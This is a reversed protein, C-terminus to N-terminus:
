SRKSAFRASILRSLLTLVFVLCILTFAATWAIQNALPYMYDAAFLVSSDIKYRPM